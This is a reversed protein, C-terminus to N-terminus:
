HVHVYQKPAYTFIHLNRIGKIKKIVYDFKNLHYTYLWIIIVVFCGKANLICELFSFIM